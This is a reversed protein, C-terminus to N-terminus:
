KKLLSGKVEELIKEFVELHAVIDASEQLVIQNNGAENVIYGLHVPTEVGQTGGPVDVPQKATQSVDCHLRVLKDNEINYSANYTFEGSKATAAVSVIRSTEQLM